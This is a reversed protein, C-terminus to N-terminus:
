PHESERQDEARTTFDHLTLPVCVETGLRIIERHTSVFDDTNKTPGVNTVIAKRSHSPGSPWISIGRPIFDSSLCACRVLMLSANSFM